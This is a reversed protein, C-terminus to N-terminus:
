AQNSILGDLDQPTDIDILVGADNVDVLHARPWDILQRAGADGTAQMLTPWHARPLIRPHGIRGQYRPATAEGTALFGQRLASLSAPRIAPMDALSVMVAECGPTANAHRLAAALSRGMGQTADPCPIPLAGHRACADLGFTDDPPLVVWTPWSAARHLSIVADLLSLGNALRAQRKDSGFRRGEGAALIVSVFQNM